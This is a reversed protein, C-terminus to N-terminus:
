QNYNKQMQEYRKKDLIEKKKDPLNLSLDELAASVPSKMLSKSHSHHASTGAGGQYKNVVFSDDFEGSLILNCAKIIAEAIKAELYGLKQNTIAAQKKVNVLEYIIKMNVTEKSINFNDLARHTSIGYYTNDDLTVEGLFDTEKRM